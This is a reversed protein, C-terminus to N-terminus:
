KITVEMEKMAEWLGQALVSYREDKELSAVIQVIERACDIYKFLIGKYYYNDPVQAYDWGEPVQGKHARM